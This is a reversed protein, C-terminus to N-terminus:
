VGPTRCWLDPYPSGTIVGGGWSQDDRLFRHSHRIYCPWLFPDLNNPPNRGRTHATTL